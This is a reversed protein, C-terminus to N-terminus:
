LGYMSRISEMKKEIDAQTRDITESVVQITKAGERTKTNKILLECLDGDVISKVPFYSSRYSLHDRGCIFFDIPKVNDKSESNHFEAKHALERLTMELSQFFDADQQHTFPVIIGLAGTITAYILAPPSGPSFSGFQLKTVVDGIYIGAQPQLKNPAGNLLGRQWVWQATSDYSSEMEDDRVHSPLRSIFLNGFKDAGAVTDYDLPQVSTLWHPSMDDAFVRFVGENPDYKVFHFSHTLDGVYIRNGDSNLTVIRQPVCEKLECKRLLQKQGLEYLRLTNGIGALLQGRFPILAQPYGNVPTSHLFNLSVQRNKSIIQYVRLFGSQDNQLRQKPTPHLIMNAVTGVILYNQANRDARKPNSSSAKQFSVIAMSIAAENTGLETLSITQERTLERPDYISICSNWLSSQRDGRIRGYESEDLIEAQENKKEVEGNQQESKVFRNHDTEIVILKQEQHLVELKRPTFQCPIRKEFFTNELQDNQITLVRLSFKNASDVALAVLGGENVMESYFGSAHLLPDYSLPVWVRRKDRNLMLWSRSSLALIATETANLRMRILQVAKAGLLKVRTDSLDGTTPEIHTWTVMGNSLGTILRMERDAQEDIIVSEPESVCALRSVVTMCDEPNVSLVRVTKDAACGIAMFRTRSRGEIVNGLGICMIETQLEMRGAEIMQGTHAQYEFYLVQNDTTVIAVQMSNAAAYRIVRNPKPAMASNLDWEYRRGDNHTLRFGNPHIQISADQNSGMGGRALITSKNSIFGSESDSVETVSEGISLVMTFQAFSILIYKDFLGNEQKSEITFVKMCQHTMSTVALENVPTGYRMVRISSREARGCTAYIQPQNEHLLDLVKFDLIASYSPLTDIKAINKLPRPHFLPITNVIGNDSSIEMEAVIVDETDDGISKFRYLYNDSYESALFLHGSKLVNISNGIPITDFYKITIGRVINSNEDQDLTVKYLDGLESQIIFFLLTRKNKKKSKHMASAVIMLGCGIPMDVRRPIAQKIVEKREESVIGYYSLYNESAVLVGSPGDSGGPVSILYHATNDVIISQKKVVHNVGLDLEYFTLYKNHPQENYDVELCAFIPNEFGVDVGVTSYVLTHSKHAELPSSITLKNQADRNLIYAFKQKEIASIMVARGRPDVALYQGPVIRRCGTKGFTEQHVKVFRHEKDDFELICIKGSDSGIIIYDRTSGPLRFAELSRVTAFTPQSHVKQITSGSIRYLVLHTCQSAVIETVKQTAAATFNGSISHTICGSWQLTLNYLHMRTATRTRENHIEVHHATGFAL